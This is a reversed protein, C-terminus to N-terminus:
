AEGGAAELGPRVNTGATPHPIPLDAAPPEVATPPQDPGVFAVTGDDVIFLGSYGRSRLFVAGADVGLLLAVKAAVEAETCTPATATASWVGTAAPEGSRPDLLHHHWRGDVQWRRRGVSSTALAGGDLELVLRGAPPSGATPPREVEIRWSGGDPASGFVALDGGAEVAAAPLGVARLLALAADVAMGKAIGGLDIRTGPPLEITRSRPDLRIARWAPGAPAGRPSRDPRNSASTSSAGARGARAPGDGGSGSARAVVTEFTRDYGLAELRDLLTPDFLGDTAVAAAVATELADFLLPSAGRRRGTRNLRSLESAPRFRSLRAEWEAFVDAVVSTMASWAPPVLVTVTTGM